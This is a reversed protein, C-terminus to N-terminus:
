IPHKAHVKANQYIILKFVSINFKERLITENGLIPYIGHMKATTYRVLQFVNLDGTKQITINRWLPQKLQKEKQKGM